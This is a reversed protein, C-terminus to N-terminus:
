PRRKKKLSSKSGGLATDAEGRMLFLGIESVGGPRMLISCREIPVVGLEVLLPFENM